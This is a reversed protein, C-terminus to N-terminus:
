EYALVERITLRSANWAPLFSALGALILMLALWLLAGQTSFTYSLPADMFAVGVGDSLLKSIPLAAIAGVVWSILGIFLGEVMVVKLIAGNGAGVARMVGIERTREIVNLSMTGMLGLGGVIAILVAMFALFFVIINFQFEVTQRIAATTQTSRVRMGLSDFYTKARKALAAQAAPASDAAVLQVGRSRGVFRIVRAFYPYNAYALRGTMVGRVIGVVQWESERGEIKLKLTDGLKIGKEEDLLPTNIVLANEDDPLLWRGALLTPQILTTDAPAGIIGFNPGEEGDPRLRRATNGIWSEADIVGPIKLAEREIEAIRHPNSFDVEVQYNWYALADDLTKRLSAHVSLVAIFIAGGLTLTFLTLALRWKRRVANRLSIRMPRSLARIADTLGQMARDLLNTGFHGKGVGIDRMAEAPSIRTGIFIPAAAAILPVILGVAVELILALPPIRFGALDFNILGALYQTFAYAVYAGM